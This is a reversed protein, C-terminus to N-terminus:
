RGRGSDYIAFPSEQASVRASFHRPWLHVWGGFFSISLSLSSLSRAPRNEAPLKENAKACCTGAGCGLGVSGLHKRVAGSCFGTTDLVHVPHSVDLHEQGEAVRLRPFKDGATVVGHERGLCGADFSVAGCACTSPRSKSLILFSNLRTPADSFPGFSQVGSQLSTSTPTSLSKLPMLAGQTAWSFM